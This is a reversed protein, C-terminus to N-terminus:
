SKGVLSNSTNEECHLPFYRTIAEWWGSMSKKLLPSVDMLTRVEPVTFADHKKRMKEEKTGKETSPLSCKHLKSAYDVWQCYPLISNSRCVIAPDLGVL